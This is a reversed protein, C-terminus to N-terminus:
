QLVQVIVLMIVIITAITMIISVILIVLAIPIALITLITLIITYTPGGGRAVIVPRCRLMCACWVNHPATEIKTVTRSM